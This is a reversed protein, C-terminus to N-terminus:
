PTTTADLNSRCASEFDEAQSSLTPSIWYRKTGNEIHTVDLYWTNEPESWTSDCIMNTNLTHYKLILKENETALLYMERDCGRPDETGITTNNEEYMLIKAGTNTDLIYIKNSFGCGGNNSFTNESLYYKGPLGTIPIAGIVPAVQNVAIANVVHTETSSSPPFTYIVNNNQDVLHNNDLSYRTENIAPAPTQPQNNQSQPQTTNKAPDSNELLPTNGLTEAMKQFISTASSTIKTFASSNKKVQETIPQNSTPSPIETQSSIATTPTDQKCVGFECSPGSRPISSGDPCMMVDTPCATLLNAHKKNRTYILGFCIATALLIIGLSILTQKM